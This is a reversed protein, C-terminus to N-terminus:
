SPWSAGNWSAARCSRGAKRWSQLVAADTGWTGSSTRRGGPLKMEDFLIEGLVKPSGLNFPRGALKHIEAEGAAMREGFDASLRRLEAEDVTIGAREMEALVPILRRELQEYLATARADALRARLAQRLRLACDAAEAVHSAARETPVQALALRARGTGTVADLGTM